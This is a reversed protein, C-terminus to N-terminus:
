VKQRFCMPLDMFIAYNETIAFDHMMVSELITIPVPDHMFGDKSIVRYTVYPPTQSYGFTFMECPKDAESLVLLKGHHYILATNGLMLTYDNLQPCKKCKMLLIASLLRGGGFGCALDLVNFNERLMKMYAMFLGFLGKLDGIKTFKAGELFNKGDGDFWHYGAVPSFKSNPGVRIFEGNLCEPLYGIVHLNTIPPTEFPVPAFNGSLYHLPLSSNYTFKVIVSEVFDITKSALGNHPMPNVLVIGMEQEATISSKRRRRKYTELEIATVAPSFHVYRNNIIGLTLTAQQVDSESERFHHHATIM